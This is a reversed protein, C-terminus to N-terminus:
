RARAVTLMGFRRRASERLLARRSEHWYTPRQRSPRERQGPNPTPRDCCRLLPPGNVNETAKSVRSRPSHRLARRGSSLDIRVKVLSASQGSAQLVGEPPAACSSSDFSTHRPEALRHHRDSYCSRPEQVRYSCRKGGSSSPPPRPRKKRTVDM